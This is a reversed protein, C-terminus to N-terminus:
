DEVGLLKLAFKEKERMEAKDTDTMHDYGFLHMLGHVTLYTMEREPTHGFETAQENIKDECLVISGIFLHRGDMEFPYENKDLVKGRIGDLSPYSLVDTVKDVARTTRNLEQMACADEFVLEAKLLTKQGLTKYVAKAIKKFNLKKETCDIVLKGM